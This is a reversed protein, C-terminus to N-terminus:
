PLRGFDFPAAKAPVKVAACRTANYIPQQHHQECTLHLSGAWQRLLVKVWGRLLGGTVNLVFCCLFLVFCYNLVTFIAQDAGMEPHQSLVPTM